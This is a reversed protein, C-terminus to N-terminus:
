WQPPRIDPSTLLDVCRHWTNQTEPDTIILWTLSSTIAVTANTNKNVSGVVAHYWKIGKYAIIDGHRLSAREWACYDVVLKALPPLLHDGLLRRYTDQVATPLEWDNLSSSAPLQQV